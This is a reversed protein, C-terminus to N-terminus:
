ENSTAHLNISNVEVNIVKLYIFKIKWLIPIKYNFINILNFSNKNKRCKAKNSLIRLPTSHIGMCHNIAKHPQAFKAM